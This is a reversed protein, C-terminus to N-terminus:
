NLLPLSFFFSAGENLKADAWIKGNHKAIIRHVIALGVGTGEFESEKHLRQFIGFLKDAYQMDFGVGNDVISFIVSDEKVESNIYIEPNMSHSSYKIANSLLNVFVQNILSKDASAIGLNGIRIKAQHKMSKSLDILVNEVLEKMDVNSKRIEQKGLRSFSLLDDILTGMKKANHQITRLLRNGEKGILTTYEEELIGAFGDIARLPARLDHSVSYTFSELENMTDILQKTREEVKLELNDKLEMIKEEAEKNETVDQLIVVVEQIAGSLSKLPYLTMVMWRKRGENGNRSQDYLYPKSKSLEGNFAKMVIEGLESNIIQADELINYGEINERTVGFMNGWAENTMIYNGNPTYNIVPYPFQEIISRFREESAKLKKEVKKRDTVDHFNFVIGNISDDHLMNTITGEAWIFHGKKHKIRFDILFSQEPNILAKNTVDLYNGIDDSHIQESIKHNLIEDEAWGTVRMASPTIYLIKFNEDTVHVIEHSNEILGRFRRENKLIQDSREIVMKELEDNMKKIQEEARKRETIDYLITIFCVSQDISTQESSFLAIRKEGSKHTFVVEHNKLFGDKNLAMVLKTRESEDMLNIDASTNGIVEELTYGTMTLFQENANTWRGFSDGLTIGAPSAQFIKLFKSESELLQQTTQELTSKM